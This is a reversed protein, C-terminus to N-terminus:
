PWGRSANSCMPNSPQAESSVHMCCKCAWLWFLRRPHFRLGPYTCWFQMYHGRRNGSRFGRRIRQHEHARRPPHFRPPLCLQFFYFCISLHLYRPPTMVSVCGMQMLLVYRVVYLALFAASGSAHFLGWFTWHTYCGVIPPGVNQNDTGRMCRVKAQTHSEKDM